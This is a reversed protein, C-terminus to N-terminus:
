PILASAPFAVVRQGVAHPCRRAAVSRDEFARVTLTTFRLSRRLM